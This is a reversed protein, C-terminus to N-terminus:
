TVSSIKRDTSAIIITIMQLDFSKEECKQRNKQSGARAAKAQRGEESKTARTYSSV